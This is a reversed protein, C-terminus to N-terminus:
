RSADIRGAPQRPRRLAAARIELGMPALWFGTWTALSARWLAVVPMLVSDVYAAHTASWDRVLGAPELKQPQAAHRRQDLDIIQGM